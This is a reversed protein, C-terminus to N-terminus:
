YRFVAALLGGGPIEEPAVAYVTGGAVFTQVAALNLLDQVQPGPSERISIENSHPDFRGWLQVGIPVFLFHVRGQHAAPIVDEPRNSARQTHWAELYRDAAKRREQLFHAAAIPAAKSHLDAPSLSDPNGSVWEDLLEPSSNAQRYLPYLYDVAALILPVRDESLLDRIGRDIQRFYAVLTDKKMEESGGHGHFIASGTGRHFPSATHAQVQKEPFRNAFAEALSKPMRSAEVEAIGDPTARFLRPLNQSLALVFFHGDGTILPLLPKLHFRDAVVALEPMRPEVRLIRCLDKSRFIALGDRQHQWFGYDELLTRVPELLAEADASMLNAAALQGEADKLLNKLRIPGQSTEVGARHTPMFISVCAPGASEVLRRLETRTLSEM